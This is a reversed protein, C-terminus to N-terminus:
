LNFSINFTCGSMEGQNTVLGSKVKDCIEKEKVLTTRKEVTEESCRIVSSVLQQQRDTTRCYPKLGDLSHHGTRDMIVKEPIGADIMRTTATARLSHNTMRDANIGAEKFMNKLMSKLTNHGMVRAYYWPKGEVGSELPRLYFADSDVSDAPFPPRKSLYLDLLAVFCKSGLAPNAYHRVVKNQQRKKIQQLGGKNNKSGHETYEYCVIEQGPNQPDSVVLRNFQSVKLARHEDGGRLCLSLGGYFFVTRLLQKPTDVGMVGKTWLLEEQETSIVDSQCPHTGVGESHLQKFHSDMVKKLPVFNADKEDFINFANSKKDRMYRLLGSLLQFLTRPPYKEGNEKRTEMVFRCLYSCLVKPDDTLLVTDPNDVKEELSGLWSTFNNLAWSNCHRTNNPIFGKEAESVEDESVKKFRNKRLSLSLRRKKLPPVNEKEAM